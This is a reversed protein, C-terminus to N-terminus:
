GFMPEVLRSLGISRDRGLLEVVDDFYIKGTKSDTAAQLLDKAEDESFPYAASTM